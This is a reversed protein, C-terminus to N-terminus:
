GGATYNWEGGAHKRGPAVDDGSTNL